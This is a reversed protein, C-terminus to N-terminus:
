PRQALTALIATHRRDMEKLYAVLDDHRRQGNESGAQVAHSLAQVSESMAQVSRSVTESMAQVGRSMGQVTESMAQVSSSMGRVTESATQANGSVAEVDSQIAQLLTVSDRHTREILADTNTQMRVVLTRTAHGNYFVGYITLALGLLSAFIGAFGAVEM